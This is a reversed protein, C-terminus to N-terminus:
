WILTGITQFKTAEVVNVQPVNRSLADAVVHERGKRHIVTFDYQQM